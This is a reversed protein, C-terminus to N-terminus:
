DPMCVPPVFTPHLMSAPGLNERTVCRRKARITYYVIYIMFAEDTMMVRCGDPRQPNKVSRFCAPDLLRLRSTPFISFGLRVARSVGAAYSTRPGDDRARDIPVEPASRVRASAEPTPRM